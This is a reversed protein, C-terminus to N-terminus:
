EFTPYCSLRNAYFAAIGIHDSLVFAEDQMIVNYSSYASLQYTAVSLYEDVDADSWLSDELLCGGNKALHKFGNLVEIFRSFYVEKKVNWEDTSLKLTQEWNALKFEKRLCDILVKCAICSVRIVQNKKYSEALHDALHRTYQNERQEDHNIVGNSVFYDRISLHQGDGGVSSGDFDVPNGLVDLPQGISIYHVMNKSFAHRVMRWWFRVKGDIKIKKKYASYSGQKKIFDRVLINDEMVRSYSLVIPVVFIKRENNEQYLMRQAGVATGMLGLKMQQEIHGTRSRTGGPFFLNEVGDYISLQAVSKLTDLYFKNKKRRDVRYAGLRHMFYAAIESNYLNLGAGYHPSPLGVFRDLVYGLFLSDLNSSHTPVLVINGIDHLRRVHEVSGVVRIKDSLYRLRGWFLSHGDRFRNFVISFFRNCFKRAFRFMSPKFRGCIEEAYAHVIRRVVDHLIKTAEESEEPLQEVENLTRKIRTWFAQENPPDVNWKNSRIRREEMLVAQRLSELMAARDEQGVWTCTHEVVREVFQKRHDSLRKIPWTDINPILHPLKDKVFEM